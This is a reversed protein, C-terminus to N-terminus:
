GNFDRHQQDKHNSTKIPTTTYNDIRTCSRLLSFHVVTSNSIHAYFDDDVFNLVTSQKTIKKELHYISYTFDEANYDISSQKYIFSNKYHIHLHYHSFLDEIPHSLYSIIFVLTLGNCRKSMTGYNYKICYIDITYAFFITFRM